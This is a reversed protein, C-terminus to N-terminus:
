QTQNATILTYAVGEKDGARGTRGVRHIHDEKDKACDYNIVTKITPIDLGRSAVNTALLIACNGAKFKSLIQTREVQSKDGHIAAIGKSRYVISLDTLLQEVTQIQNAFVLVQHGPTAIFNDLNQILWQLKDMEKRFVLVTQSVDENSVNEKGVVIKVPDTLIDSCLKEVKPKFTASFLLTQRDPRIQGVLTRVQYEFGMNFMQDAEDIVLFSCRSTLSFAKKRIMDILQGPTGVVVENKTSKISKWIQQMDMGGFLPLVNINLRKCYKACVEYIQYCLERTPAIILGIPGEGKELVRQDLIHMLMPVLFALTKGSGTKAIGIVDRGALACTIAQCQIPTPAGYGM